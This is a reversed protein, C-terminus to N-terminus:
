QIGATGAVVPSAQPDVCTTFTFAFASLGPPYWFDVPVVRGHLQRFSLPAPNLWVRGIEPARVKGKQVRM